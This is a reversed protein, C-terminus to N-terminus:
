RSRTCSFFLLLYFTCVFFVRVRWESWKMERRGIMIRYLQIKLHLKRMYFQFHMLGYLHITLSLHTWKFAWRSAQRFNVRQQNDTRLASIKKKKQVVAMSNIHLKNIKSFSCQLITSPANKQKPIHFQICKINRKPKRSKKNLKKVIEEIKFTKGM